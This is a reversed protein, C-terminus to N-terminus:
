KAVTILVDGSNVAQGKTVNIATVTGAVPTVIDNEMKMAELVVVVQNAAVSDGVNVKIDLINGPMPATVKEGEGTAASASAQPAPAPTAPAPTAAPASAQPTAPAVPAQSAGLEEVQVDYTNGNVTIRYNKM